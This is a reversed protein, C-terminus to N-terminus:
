LSTLGLPLRCTFTTAAATSEVAITGRHARMIQSAIYLGLGLSPTGRSEGGRQFPEFMRGLVAPAIPPGGNAVRFSLEDVPDGPHSISVLVAEGPPSHQLANGLLNQLVQSLRTADGRVPRTRGVSMSIIRGPHASQLEDVVQRFPVAIDPITAMALQMDGGLRGRAFDVVDDVLRRIRDASRRIRGVTKKQPLSLDEDDELMEAGMAISNLPSRLDHGLVAIFQERLESTARADLLAETIRQQHSEAELQLSLLETFLQFLSLTKADIQIPKADLACLNGFYDGNRLFIPVSIYSEFKYMKPTHHDKYVPDVSAHSMTVPRRQQRVESCLTTAVELEGGVEMGFALQDNVACCTWTTETVHAVMSLRLGTIETIVRLMTPVASVGSVRNIAIAVDPHVAAFSVV